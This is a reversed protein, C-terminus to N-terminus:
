LMRKEIIETIGANDAELEIKFKQLEIDLRRIYKDILDYIQIAQTVKEESDEITKTYDQYIQQYQAERIDSELEKASGFFKNM